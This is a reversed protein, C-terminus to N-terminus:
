RSKPISLPTEYGETRGEMRKYSVFCAEATPGKSSMSMEKLTVDPITHPTTPLTPDPFVENSKAKTPLM